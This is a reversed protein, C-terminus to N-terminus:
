LVVFFGKFCCLVIFCQRVQDVVEQREKLLDFMNEMDIFNQQIMRYYTGFWNLPMYLQMIYTSFLVYDGVTLTHPPCAVLWAAVLSGALLGVSIVGNQLTNLLSLSASSKWEEHQPVLSLSLTLSLSLSLSLLSLSNPGTWM